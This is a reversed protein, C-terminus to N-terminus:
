ASRATISCLSLMLSAEWAQHHEQSVQKSASRFSQFRAMLKEVSCALEVDPTVLVPIAPSLYTGSWVEIWIVEGAGGQLRPPRVEVQMTDDPSAGPVRTTRLMLHDDCRCRAIISVSQPQPDRLQAALDCDCTVAGIADNAAAATAAADSSNATAGVVAAARMWVAERVSEPGAAPASAGTGDSTARTLHTGRVTLRLPTEGDTLLVRPWVSPATPMMGSLPTKDPHMAM